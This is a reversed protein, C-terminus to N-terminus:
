KELKNKMAVEIPLLPLSNENVFENWEKMSFRLIFFTPAQDIWFCGGLPTRILLNELFICCM